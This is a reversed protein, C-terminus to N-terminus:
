SRRGMVVYLVGSINGQSVYTFMFRWGEAGHKNMEAIDMPFEIYEFIM